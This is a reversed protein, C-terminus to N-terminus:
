GGSHSTSERPALRHPVPGAVPSEGLVAAVARRAIEANHPAVTTHRPTPYRGEPIDDFGAVAIDDPIRLGADHVARM